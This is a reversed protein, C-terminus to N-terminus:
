TSIKGARFDKLYFPECYATDAFQKEKFAAHALFVMNTASVEFADFFYTNTRPALVPKCKAAGEGFFLLKREKLEESYSNADIVDASPPRVEKLENDYFACYVEMRRADLMPCLLVNKQLLLNQVDPLQLAGAAMIKLTSSTILPINLAYCFGKAASMGIRLGTYSGPGCSVAVADLQRFEIKHKKLLEDIMVTLKEAHAFGSNDEALGLLKGNAHSLAVSCIKTATEICLIRPM